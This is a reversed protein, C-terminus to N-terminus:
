SVPTYFKLKFFSVVLLFRSSIEFLGIGSLYKKITSFIRDSIFSLDKIKYFNEFLNYALLEKKVVNINEIICDGKGYIFQIYEGDEKEVENVM